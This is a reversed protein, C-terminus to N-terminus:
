YNAHELNQVDIQCLDKIIPNRNKDIGLERPKRKDFLDTIKEMYLDYMSITIKAIENSNKTQSEKYDILYKFLQPLIGPNEKTGSISYSKGSGTQGYAFLCYNFGNEM